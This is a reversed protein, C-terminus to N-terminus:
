LASITMRFTDPAQDALKGSVFDQYAEAVMARFRFAYGDCFNRDLRGKRGEALVACGGGCFLAYRCQQCVPNSTVTRTRWMSSNAEDLEVTSEPTIRGIRVKPNGTREWCAYLDGFRDIVYMGTHASCFVPQLSTVEGSQFVSRARIRISEDKPEIAIMVPDQERLADLAQNMEWSSFTRARDTKDNSPSIPTAYAAFNPQETWGKDTFIRALVPLQGINDRDVNLRVQVYSERSLALSINGAIREFSGSGDAYIRRKDHEEPTGDLTIQLEYLGDPGLLDEYADLDTANTVVSVTRTGGERARAMIHDILDRNGRLLPEGGFLTIPRRFGADPAIGHMLEIQPMADFIRDVMPHSMRKLLHAFEPKTRMHDQFCYFCRLNCNYTPMLVYTPWNNERHLDDALHKFRQLEEDRSLYTLYGRRLLVQIYEDPLDPASRVEPEPTWDGYLPKPARRDEKARLYTAVRKSVRDFAGTYGHVIVMDHDNRPLDVYVIYSSTRLTRANATVVAGCGCSSGAGHSRGSGSGCGCASGSGCCNETDNGGCGAEAFAANQGTIDPLVSV